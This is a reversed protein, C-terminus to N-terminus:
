VYDHSLVCRANVSRGGKAPFEVVLNEVRVLVNESEDRLHATGTGAM